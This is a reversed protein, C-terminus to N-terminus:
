QNCFRFRCPPPSVFPVITLYNYQLTDGPTLSAPQGTLTFSATVTYKGVPVSTTNWAVVVTLTSGLQLIVPVASYITYTTANRATVTLSLTEAYDGLNQIKVTITAILKQYAIPGAQLQILKANHVPSISNTKIYFIKFDSAIPYDSSYFIYLSKDFGQVVSPEGDDLPTNIDGYFTLQIDRSWHSGDTSYKYWLKDQYVATNTAPDIGLFMARSWVDWITGNRDVALTPNMDLTNNNTLLTESQWAHGDYYRYYVNSTNRTVLRDWTVWIRGDVTTIPGPTYDGIGNPPPTPSLQTDTSWTNGKLTKYYVLTSNSTTPHREWFVWLTSNRAVTVRPSFDNFLTGSTLRVSSSWVLGSYLKYYLNWFGTQNSSWVLIITTNALQGITPTITLNVGTPLLQPSSWGNKSGYTIFYGQDLWHQWVIWMTGNVAQLTSPTDDQGPILDVEQPGSFTYSQASVRPLSFQPLIMMLSLAIMIVVVIRKLFFGSMIFDSEQGRLPTKKPKTPDDCDWAMAPYRYRPSTM